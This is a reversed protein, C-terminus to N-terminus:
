RTGFLSALNTFSTALVTDSEQACVTQMLKTALSTSDSPSLAGLSIHFASLPCVELVRAAHRRTEISTATNCAIAMLSTLCTAEAMM